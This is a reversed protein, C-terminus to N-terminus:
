APGRKIFMRLLRLKQNIGSAAAEYSRGNASVKGMSIDLDVNNGDAGMATSNDLVVHDQEFDSIDLHASNTKVLDNESPSGHQFAKELQGAFDLERARYNPTDANAVNGVLVSHRKFRLDMSEELGKFTDDFIKM